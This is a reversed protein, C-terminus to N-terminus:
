SLKYFSFEDTNEDDSEIYSFLKLLTADSSICLILWFDFSVWSFLNDM